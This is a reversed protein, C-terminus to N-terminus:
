GESYFGLDSLPGERREAGFRGDSDVAGSQEQFGGPARLAKACATEEAPLSKGPCGRAERVGAGPPKEELLSMRMEQSHCSVGM